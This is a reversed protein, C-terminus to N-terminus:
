IGVPWRYTKNPSIDILTGNKIPNNTGKSNFQMLQKYVKSILGKDPEDNAFIEGTGYNTKKKFFFHNEKSQLLM